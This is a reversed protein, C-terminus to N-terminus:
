RSHIDIMREILRGVHTGQSAISGWHLKCQCNGSNFCKVIVTICTRQLRLGRLKAGRPATYANCLTETTLQPVLLNCGYSAIPYEIFSKKKQLRNISTARSNLSFCLLIAVVRDFIALSNFILIIIINKNLFQVQFFYFQLKKKESEPLM